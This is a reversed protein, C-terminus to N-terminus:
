HNKSAACHAAIYEAHTPMADAARQVVAKIEQMIRHFENAEVQNALPHYHRPRLGQGQMVAFWSVEDFLENNDRFLRGSSEYLDLKKQLSEPVPMHRCYNWFDSDTRQSVKYHLIIFDRIQEFETASQRNYLDRQSAYDTTAPFLKALRIIGSQILHLSTSELPELFGSALGLSICNKHWQM